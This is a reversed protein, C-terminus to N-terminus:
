SGEFTILNPHVTLNGRQDKAAQRRMYHAALEAKSRTPYQRILRRVFRFPNWVHVFLLNVQWQGVSPDIRDIVQTDPLWYDQRVFQMDM